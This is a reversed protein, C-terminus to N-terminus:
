NRDLLQRAKPQDQVWALVESAPLRWNPVQIHSILHAAYDLYLKVAMADDGLVAAVIALALQASEQSVTGWDFGSASHTILDLRPDLMFGAYTVHRSGDALTSGTFDENRQIM